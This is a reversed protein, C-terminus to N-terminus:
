LGFKTHAFLTQGIRLMYCHILSVVTPIVNYRVNVFDMGESSLQGNNYASRVADWETAYLENMYMADM